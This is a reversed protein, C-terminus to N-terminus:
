PFTKGTFALPYGSIKPMFAKLDKSSILSSISTTTTVTSRFNTGSTNLDQPLFPMWLMTIMEPPPFSSPPSRAAISCCILSMEFCSLTLIIPGLQIPINLPSFLNSQAKWPWSLIILGLFPSTANKDCLPVTPMANISVESENPILLITDYPLLDSTSSASIIQYRDCSGCVFTIPKYTSPSPSPRLNIFVALRTIVSLFFGTITNLFPLLTLPALCAAECVPENPPEYM